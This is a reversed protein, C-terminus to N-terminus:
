SSQQKKPMNVEWHCRSGNITGTFNDGKISGSLIRDIGFGPKAEAVNLYTSAWVKGSADVTGSYTPRPPWSADLTYITVRGAAITMKLTGTESRNCGAVQSTTGTYEGDFMASAAAGQSADISQAIRLRGGLRHVSDEPLYRADPERGVQRNAATDERYTLRADRSIVRVEPLRSLETRIDETIRDAWYQQAPDDRSNAFALGVILIPRPEAASRWRKNWDEALIGAVLVVLIAFASYLGRRRWPGPAQRRMPVAPEPPDARTVAGVFRYGRGPVTQICSREPNKADLIRRLASIQTPLNCAEVTTGNWVAAMIEDRSVVEGHREVLVQLLDLARSGMAVPALAGDADVRFLGGCGPDFRFEAFLFAGTGTGSGM